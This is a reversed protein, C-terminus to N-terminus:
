PKNALLTVFGITSSTNLVYVVIVKALIAIALGVLAYILTNKASNVRNSDGSSTMYKFGSVIVMVVALAGVVMSLINVATSILGNVSSSANSSCTSGGLQSLGQCACDKASGCSSAALSFSVKPSIFSPAALAQAPVYMFLALAIAPLLQKLRRLM